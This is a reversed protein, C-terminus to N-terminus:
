TQPFILYPCSLGAPSPPIEKEERRGKSAFPGAGTREGRLEERM